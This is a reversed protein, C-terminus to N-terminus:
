WRSTAQEVAEPGRFDVYGFPRGDRESVGTVTASTVAGDQFINTCTIMSADHHFGWPEATHPILTRELTKPIVNRPVASTTRQFVAFLLEGASVLFRPFNAFVKSPFKSPLAAVARRQWPM